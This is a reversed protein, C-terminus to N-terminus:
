PCATDTASLSLVLAAEREQAVERAAAAEQPEVDQPEVEVATAGAAAEEEVEDVVVVLAEEEEEEEVVVLPVEVGAEEEREVEVREEREPQASVASVGGGEPSMSPSEVQPGVGSAPLLSSCAEEAMAEGMARAAAEAAEAEESEAACPTCSAASTRPELAAAIHKMAHLLMTKVQLKDESLHHGRPLKAFQNTLTVCRHANEPSVFDLAVKVCSSLNRV